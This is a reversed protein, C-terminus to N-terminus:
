GNSSRGKIASVARFICGGALAGVFMLPPLVTGPAFMILLAIAQGVQTSHDSMAHAFLLPLILAVAGGFLFGRWFSGDM